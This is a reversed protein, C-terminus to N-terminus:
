LRSWSGHGHGSDYGHGHGTVKIKVMVAKVMAMVAFLIKETKNGHYTRERELCFLKFNTLETGSTSSQKTPGHLLPPFQM